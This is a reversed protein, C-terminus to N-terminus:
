EEELPLDASAASGRGESLQDARGHQRAALELLTLGHLAAARDGPSLSDLLAEVREPDLASKADRIRVGAKTLRLFVRRRDTRDRKRAVYGNRALRRIAISMTSPTVGMRAALESLTTPESEDLHDLISAQHASLIRESQPDRVHRTRCAFRIRSLQQTLQRVDRSRM